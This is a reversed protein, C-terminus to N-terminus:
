TTSPKSESPEIATRPPWRTGAKPAGSTGSTFLLLATVAPDVPAAPLPAGEYPALQHRYEPTDVVLIRDDTLGLDLGHLLDVFRPETVILQCDTYTIDRALEAGQRTPNIGVVVAGAFAAAGLWYVFEPVNELLVGVHQGPQLCAARQRAKSVVSSWSEFVGEFYLGSTENDALSAFLEAVSEAM